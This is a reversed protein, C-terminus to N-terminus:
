CIICFGFKRPKTEYIQYTTNYESKNLIDKTDCLGQKMRQYIQMTPKVFAFVEDVNHASKASTELFMLGNEKAFTQGEEISVERQRELDCKNGIVIISINKNTMSRVEKLRQTLHQFTEHSDKCLIDYYYTIVM